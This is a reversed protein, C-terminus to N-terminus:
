RALHRFAATVQEYVQRKFPVVLDKMADLQIWQWMDFEQKHGPPKLDIEADDGLFRLAFWKQTQGRWRGGWSKGQLHQPLDYHYWEPAEAIVEASRVSTEEYLERIACARPDEGEDIGGQPMQWWTGQGEDHVKESRRGLWVLGQKNLLMMGVCPRYGPEPFRGM